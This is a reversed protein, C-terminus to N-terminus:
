KKPKVIVTAFRDSKFLERRMKEAERLSLSNVIDRQTKLYRKPNPLSEGKIIKEYILSGWSDLSEGFGATIRDNMTERTDEFIKKDKSTIPTFIAKRMLSEVLKEKGPKTQAIANFYAGLNYMRSVGGGASYALGRKERIERWLRSSWGSVLLSLLFDEVIDMRDSIKEPVKCGMLVTSQRRDGREIVHRNKLLPLDFESDWVSRIVRGHNVPIRHEMERVFGSHSVRGVALVVTNSPVYWREKERLLDKRTISKIGEETGTSFQRLPNKAYLLERLTLDAIYSDSDKNRAAELLVPGKEKNIEKQPFNSNVYIDSIIDCVKSLKKYVAVGYYETRLRSTSANFSLLNRNAFDRIDKATRKKTGKFAMHEFYHFLGQKDVPDQASGILASIEVSVKTQTPINCTIIRLGDKRTTEKIEVDM